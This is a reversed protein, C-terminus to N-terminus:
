SLVSKVLSVDSRLISFMTMDFHFENWYLWHRLGGENKFGLKSLVKESAINGQMVEAEIRNIELQSFGFKLIVALAETIYGNNWFSSQLDFGINARHNKTFNNFGVTGIIKNKGKLAIGWRIGSKELFRSQFWDIIRQAEGVNALTAINYFKTVKADNFLEFIDTLNEQKIEILDLRSTQLAPFTKLMFIESDITNKGTQM